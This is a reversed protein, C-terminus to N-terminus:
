RSLSIPSTRQGVMEGDMRNGDPSVTLHVKIQACGSIKPPDALLDLVRGEWRGKLPKHKPCASKHNVDLVASMENNNATEIIFMAGLTKGDIYTGSYKMGILSEIAVADNQAQVTFSVMLFLMATFFSKM